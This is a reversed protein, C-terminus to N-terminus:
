RQRAVDITNLKTNRKLARTPMAEACRITTSLFPMKIISFKSPFKACGPVGDATGDEASLWGKDGNNDCVPGCSGGDPCVWDESGGEDDDDACVSNCCGSGGDPCVLEESGGDDDDDTRVSDGGGSEGEPCVPDESGNCSDEPFVTNGGSSSGGDDACVLDDGSTIGGDDDAFVFSGCCACYEPTLFVDACIAIRSSSNRM